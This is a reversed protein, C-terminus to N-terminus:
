GLAGTARLEAIRADDYGLVDRLVEDTHQGVTPAMPPRRCSRTSSSSPSRAATPATSRRRCGRCATRSSRTTPSADEAHEGPRDPHQAREGFSSGSPRDHTTQFIDRLEDRLELNGRAHDAYQSGPQAEFLDPRGIGECFNKWFEQECAMFLVHGDSSEYIQYRVGDQM